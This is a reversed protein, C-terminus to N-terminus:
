LSKIRTESCVGCYRMTAGEPSAYDPISNGVAEIKTRPGAIQVTLVRVPEPWFDGNLVYGPKIQM